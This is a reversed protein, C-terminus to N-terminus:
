HYRDYENSRNGSGWRDKIISPEFADVEAQTNLSSQAVNFNYFFLTISSIIFTRYM